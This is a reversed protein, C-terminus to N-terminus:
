CRMSKYLLIFLIELIATVIVMFLSVVNGREKTAMNSDQVIAAFARALSAGAAALAFGL